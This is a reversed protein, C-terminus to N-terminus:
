PKTFPPRSSCTIIHIYAFLFFFYIYIYIHTYVYLDVFWDVYVCSCIWPNWAMM